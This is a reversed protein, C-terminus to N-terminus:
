ELNRYTKHQRPPVRGLMLQDRGEAMRFVEGVMNWALEGPGNRETQRKNPNARLNIGTPRWPASPRGYASHLWYKRRYSLVHLNRTLKHALGRSIASNYLLSLTNDVTPIKYTGSCNSQICANMSTSQKEWTNLWERAQAAVRAGDETPPPCQVKRTMQAAVDFTPRWMARLRPTAPRAHLVSASSTRLVLRYLSRFEPPLQHIM